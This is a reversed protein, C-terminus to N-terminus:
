FNGFGERICALAHYKTTETVVESTAEVATALQTAVETELATKATVM